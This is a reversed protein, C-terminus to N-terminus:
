ENKEEECFGVRHVVKCLTDLVHVRGDQAALFAHLLNNALETAHSLVDSGHGPLNEDYIFSGLAKKAFSLKLSCTEALWCNEAFSM